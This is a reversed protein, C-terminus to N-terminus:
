NLVYFLFHEFTIKSAAPAPACKSAESESVAEIAPLLPSPPKAVQRRSYSPLGTMASDHSGYLYMIESNGCSM